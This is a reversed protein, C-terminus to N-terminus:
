PGIAQNMGALMNSAFVAIPDNYFGVKYMVLRVEPTMGIATRKAYRFHDACPVCPQSSTHGMVWFTGSLIMTM